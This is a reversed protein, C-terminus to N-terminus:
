KGEPHGPWTINEPFGPQQPVDLLAQRYERWAQKEKDPMLDWRVANIRDVSSMLMLDRQGRMEKAWANRVDEETKKKGPKEEIKGEVVVCTSDDAIGELVSEEDSMAQKWFSKDPCRGTRLIAGTRKNYVVFDKM